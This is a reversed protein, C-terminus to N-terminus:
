YSPKSSSTGKGSGKGGMGEQGWKRNKGEKWGSGGGSHARKPKRPCSDRACSCKAVSTWFWRNTLQCFEAKYVTSAKSMWVTPPELSVRAGRRGNEEAVSHASYSLCLSKKTPSPGPVGTLMPMPKKFIVFGQIERIIDALLKYVDEKDIAEILGGIIKLVNKKSSDDEKDLFHTYVNRIPGMLERLDDVEIPAAAKTMGIKLLDKDIGSRSILKGYKEWDMDLVTATPIEKRLVIMMLERIRGRLDKSLKSCIFGRPNKDPAWLIQKACGPLERVIKPMKNDRDMKAMDGM